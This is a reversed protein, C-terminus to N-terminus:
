GKRHMGIVSEPPLGIVKRREVPVALVPRVRLTQPAPYGGHWPVRAAKQRPPAIALLLNDM